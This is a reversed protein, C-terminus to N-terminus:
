RSNKVQSLEFKEMTKTKRHISTTFAMQGDGWCIGNIFILNAYFGLMKVRVYYNALTFIM